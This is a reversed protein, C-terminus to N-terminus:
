FYWNPLCRIDLKVGAGNALAQLELKIEPTFCVAGLLSHIPVQNYILAEAQYREFQEPDDVNRQFNRNQLLPWDIESLAGLDNFYRAAVLYAHRDTFVFPLGMESIRHMNSVLIVIDNNVISSVGGRGNRINYMMPSFPTFYFPVYDNLVGGPPLPVSRHARRSILDVNGITVWNPSQSNSNGSHLGNAIIWPMNKRHTIRWILAKEPNLNPYLKAM